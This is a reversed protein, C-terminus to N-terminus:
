KSRFALDIQYHGPDLIHPVIREQTNSVFCIAGIDLSLRRFPLFGKQIKKIMQFDHGEYHLSSMKIPM